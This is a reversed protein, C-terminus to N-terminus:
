RGGLELRPSCSSTLSRTTKTTLMRWTRMKMTTTVLTIRIILLCTYMWSSEISRVPDYKIHTTGAQIIQPLFPVIETPCRLVLAELTQLASEQLDENDKQLGKLIGPVIQALTPAIQGPSVRAVAAIVQIMTQQKETSGSSINPLVESTLLNAFLEPKSIPVFQALTTTTRRRVAPRQHSLLPSLVALPQPELQMSSILIPFRTILISLTM